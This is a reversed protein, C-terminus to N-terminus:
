QVFFQCFAVISVGNSFYIQMLILILIYEEHHHNSARDNILKWKLFRWYHLNQRSVILAWGFWRLKPPTCLRSTCQCISRHDDRLSVPTPFSNLWRDCHVRHGLAFSRPESYKQGDQLERELIYVRNKLSSSQLM